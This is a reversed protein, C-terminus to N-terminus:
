VPAASDARLMCATDVYCLASAAVLVACRLVPVYMVSPPKDAKPAKPAKVKKEKKEKGAHALPVNYERALTVAMDQLLQAQTAVSAQLDEVLSCM